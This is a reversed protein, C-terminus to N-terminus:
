QPNVGAHSPMNEFTEQPDLTEKILFVVFKSNAVREAANSSMADVDTLMISTLHQISSLM